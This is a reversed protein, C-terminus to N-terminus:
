VLHETLLAILSSGGFAVRAGWILGRASGSVSQVRQGPTKVLIKGLRWDHDQEGWKARGGVVGLCSIQDGFGARPPVYVKLKFM